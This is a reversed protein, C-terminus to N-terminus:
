YMLVLNVSFSNLLRTKTEETKEKVKKGEDVTADNESRDNM